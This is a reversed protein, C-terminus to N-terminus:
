LAEVHPRIQPVLAPEVVRGPGPAPARTLPPHKPPPPAPPLPPYRPPAQTLPPPHRPSPATGRSCRQKITSRRGMTQGRERKVLCRHRRPIWTSSGAPSWTRGCAQVRRCGELCGAESPLCAGTYSGGGPPSNCQSTHYLPRSTSCCLLPARRLHKPARQCTSAPQSAGRPSEHASCLPLAWCPLREGLKSIQRPKRTLGLIM